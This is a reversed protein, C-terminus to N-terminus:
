RLNGGRQAEEAAQNLLALCILCGMGRALPRAFYPPCIHYGEGYLMRLSALGRGPPTQYCEQYLQARLEENEEQLAWAQQRLEQVERLLHMLRAEIRALAETLTEM